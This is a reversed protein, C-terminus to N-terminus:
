QESNLNQFKEVESQDIDMMNKPPSRSSHVITSRSFSRLQLTRSQYINENTSGRTQSTERVQQKIKKIKLLPTKKLSKESKKGSM